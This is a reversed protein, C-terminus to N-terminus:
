GQQNFLLLGPHTLLAPSDTRPSCQLLPLWLVCVLRAATSSASLQSACTNCPTFGTHTHAIGSTAESHLPAATPSPGGDLSRSCQGPGHLVYHLPGVALRVRLSAHVAVEVLAHKGACLM